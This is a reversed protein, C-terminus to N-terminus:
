IFNKNKFKPLNLPMTSVRPSLIEQFDLSPQSTPMMEISKSSPLRNNNNNNNKLRPKQSLIIQKQKELNEIKIKSKHNSYMLICIFVVIIGLTVLLIFAPLSLKGIRIGKNTSDGSTTSSDDDKEKKNQFFM